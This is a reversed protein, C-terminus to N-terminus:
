FVLPMGEKPGGVVEGEVSSWLGRKDVGDNEALEPVESAASVDRPTTTGTAQLAEQLETEKAHRLEAEITAAKKIATKRKQVQALQIAAQVQGANLKIKLAQRVPEEPQQKKKATASRTVRQM